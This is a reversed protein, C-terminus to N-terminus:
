PEAARLLPEEASSDVSRTSHASLDRFSRHRAIYSNTRHLSGAGFSGAGSGPRQPGFSSSRALGIPRAAAAAASVSSRDLNPRGAQGLGPAPAVDAAVGTEGDQGPGDEAFLGM